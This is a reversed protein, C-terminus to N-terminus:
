SGGGGASGAEGAQAVSAQPRFSEEEEEKTHKQGRAQSTPVGYPASFLVQCVGTVELSSPALLRSAQSRSVGDQQM